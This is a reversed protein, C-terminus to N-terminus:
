AKDLLEYMFRREQIERTDVYFKIRARYTWLHPDTPPDRLIKMYKILEPKFKNFLENNLLDDFAEEQAENYFYTAERPIRVEAVLDLCHLDYSTIKLPEIPTTAIEHDNVRDPFRKYYLREVLRNILKKM